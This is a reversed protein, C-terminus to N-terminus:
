DSDSNRLSKENFYYSFCNNLHSANWMHEFVHLIIKIHLGIYDKPNRARWAKTTVKDVYGFSIAGARM